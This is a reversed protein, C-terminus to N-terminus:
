CAIFDAQAGEDPSFDRPNPGRFPRSPSRQRGAIASRPRRSRRFASLRADTGRLGHGSSGADARRCRPPLPLSRNGRRLEHLRQWPASSRAWHASRPARGRRVRCAPRQDGASVPRRSRARRACRHHAAAIRDPGRHVLGPTGARRLARSGRHRSRHMLWTSRRGAHRRTARTGPLRLSSVRADTTARRARGPPTAQFAARAGTTAPVSSSSRSGYGFATACSPARASYSADRPGAAAPQSSVRGASDAVNVQASRHLRKRDRRCRGSCDAAAWFRADRSCPHAEGAFHDPRCAASPWSAADGRDYSDAV